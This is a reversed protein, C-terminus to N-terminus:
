QKEKFVGFEDSDTIIREIPHKDGAEFEVITLDPYVKRLKKVAESGDNAVKILEKHEKESRESM